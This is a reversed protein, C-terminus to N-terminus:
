GFSQSAKQPRYGRKAGVVLNLGSLTLGGGASVGFTPDYMEQVSLQFSECKQKQPFLRTQFVQSGGGWPSSSGWLPDGGWTPTFNDPAVIIQQQTNIDYDYAINVLLKFPSIYQGLMYIFYLREYGQLGALNGWGTTFQMLVPNSNDVYSGIKEQLVQGNANLYTHLGQYLTSSIAPINVFTGWQNFYYDYMLTVGSDMTFRIQNTDPIALASKVLSGTTLTEVPAGIYNTSLDRGLLWIGKDSQFMLGNPMFVISNQNSCGVVSSIFTADSYQSNAGTNDPGIGNIYYLANEKFIILKDDMPAIATIVGTSGQSGTSPAVYITLLDSMEVPTAEIVQKSYWLLNRDESDVLWLRNNFLTMLDTAPPGIDEVVGGATYIIDNGLIQADSASDTYAISDVTTDNLIQSTTNPSQVQYYVQQAASWRYIKIVVPNATKYTLRLTPV